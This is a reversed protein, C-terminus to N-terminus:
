PDVPTPIPDAWPTPTVIGEIGVSNEFTHYIARNGYSNQIEVDCCGYDLHPEVTGLPNPIGCNPAPTAEYNYPYTNYCIGQTILGNVGNSNCDRSLLGAMLCLEEESGTIACDEINNGSPDVSALVTLKSSIAETGNSLVLRLHYLKLHAKIGYTIPVYGPTNSTYDSISISTLIWNDNFQLPRWANTPSGDITSLYRSSGGAALVYGDPDLSSYGTLFDLYAIATGGVPQGGLIRTCTYQDKPTYGLPTEGDYKLRSRVFLLLDDLKKQVLDNNNTLKPDFGRFNGSLQFLIYLGSTVMALALGLLVTNGSQDDIALLRQRNKSCKRM